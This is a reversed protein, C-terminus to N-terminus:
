LLPCAARTQTFMPAMAVVQRRAVGCQTPPVSTQGFGLEPLGLRGVKPRAGNHVEPGNDRRGRHPGWRTPRWIYGVWANRWRLTAPDQDAVLSSAWCRKCPRRFAVTYNCPRMCNPLAPPDAGSAGIPPRNPAASAVCETAQQGENRRGASQDVGIDKFHVADLAGLRGRGSSVAVLDHLLRPTRGVCRTGAEGFLPRGPGALADGGSARALGRVTARSTRPRITACSRRPIPVATTICQYQM